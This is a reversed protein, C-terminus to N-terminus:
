LSRILQNIKRMADFSFSIAQIIENFTEKFWQPIGERM